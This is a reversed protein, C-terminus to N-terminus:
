ELAGLAILLAQRSGRELLNRKLDGAGVREM